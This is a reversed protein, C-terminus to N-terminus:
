DYPYGIQRSFALVLYYALIAFFSGYLGNLLLAIIRFLPGRRENGEPPRRAQSVQVVLLGALVLAVLPLAHPPRFLFFVLLGTALGTANAVVLETARMAPRRKEIARRAAHNRRLKEAALEYLRMSRGPLSVLERRCPLSVIFRCRQM